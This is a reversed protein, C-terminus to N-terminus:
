SNHAHAIVCALWLRMVTGPAPSLVGHVHMLHYQQLSPLYLDQRVDSDLSIFACLQMSAKSVESSSSGSTSSSASMGGTVNHHPLFYLVRLPRTAALRGEQYAQFAKQVLIDVVDAARTTNQWGAPCGCSPYHLTDGFPLTISPAKVEEGSDVGNQPVDLM